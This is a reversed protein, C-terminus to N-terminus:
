CGCDCGSAAACRGSGTQTDSELLYCTVDSLEYCDTAEGRTVYKTSLSRRMMLDSAYKEPVSKYSLRPMVSRNSSEISLLKM